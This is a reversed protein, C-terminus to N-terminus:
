NFAHISENCISAAKKKEELRNRNQEVLDTYITGLQDQFFSTDPYIIGPFNNKRVDDLWQTYDAKSAVLLSAVRTLSRVRENEGLLTSRYLHYVIDNHEYPLEYLVQKARLMDGKKIHTAILNLRLERMKSSKLGKNFVELALDPKNNEYLIRGYLNYAQPYNDGLTKEIGLANVLAKEANELDGNKFLLVGLNFNCQLDFPYLSVSKYFLELAKKERSQRLALVGANYYLLGAWNAQYREPYKKYLEEAMKYNERAKDYMGRKMYSVGLSIMARMNKPSKEVADTLLAIEDRYADNRLYTANGESTVYITITVVLLAYLFARNKIKYYNLAKVLYFAFALYLFMSPLYNRHDFSLELPIITSEIAHNVFFFLVAFAIIPIRKLWLLGFLLLVSIFLIAFVTSPPDFLGKSAIIDSEMALFDSLPCFILFLYRSLVLPETLLRQWMSFPRLSYYQYIGGWKLYFIVIAAAGICCLFIVISKKYKAFPFKLFAVEYGIVALPLLVANQKTGIGLMWLLLALIVYIVKQINNKALRFQLYCFFAMVYFMAAMSAMRQVIYTVAQTQVPHVAWFIVGLLAIDCLSFSAYQNEQERDYIQLTKLFVLYIFVATLCHILINTIHYATTDFKSTRYNLAFSFFAVPRTIKNKFPSYITNKLKNWSLNQIHINENEIINPIDDFHWSSDLTNSYCIFVSFVVLTCHFVVTYFLRPSM